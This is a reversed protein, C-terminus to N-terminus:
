FGEFASEFVRELQTQHVVRTATAPAVDGERGREREGETDSRLHNNARPEIYTFAGRNRPEPHM